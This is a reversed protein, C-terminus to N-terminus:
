QGFEVLIFGAISDLLHMGCVHAKYSVSFPCHLPTLPDSAYTSYSAYFIFM